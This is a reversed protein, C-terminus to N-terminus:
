KLPQQVQIVTSNRASQQAAQIVQLTIVADTPNVPPPGGSLLADRLLAYYREYAGPLMEVPGDIHIGGIDTSLRGWKEPPELGWEPDGPRMGMRLADEQPDLGWKEYTGRLGSIRMRPGPTRTVSSMWLHAIVGNAFRLAVFTDDDV